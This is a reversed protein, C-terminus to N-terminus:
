ATAGSTGGTRCRRPHSAPFVTSPFTDTAPDYGILELADIQQGVFDIRARQELFFGGALWRFTTEGSINKDDSGALNGEMTWTGVLRDLRRLAPDPQPLQQNDSM